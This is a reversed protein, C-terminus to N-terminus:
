VVDIWFSGLPNNFELSLQGEVFWDQFRERTGREGIPLTGGMELQPIGKMIVPRITEQDLVFIRNSWDSPFCSPERFLECPVLVFKMGGFEIEQLDLKAIKNDPKYRLGPQKYIQSFRYLNQQTAYIFRTAGEVKYNTAFALTEFTAQLGAQTTTSNFSGAAVMLPYIGGMSKAAYDNSILYEGRTGNWYSVFFDVRIQKIKEEKDRKVYDTTGTNEFKQLEWKDWRKARHFIQVYNYRTITALRSYNSFYDMGDAAITSRFAFVDGAAVASLGLNSISGVTIQNAGANVSKIVGETGDPYTIILDPTVFAMSAATLTITQTVQTGPVAPVAAALAQAEIPNRGFVNEIYEFEDSDVERPTKEMAVRLAYFQQPAADFIVEKIAKRLLNTEEPTPTLASDGQYQSGQPNANPLGFPQNQIGPTYNTNGTAM